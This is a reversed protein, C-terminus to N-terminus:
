KNEIIKKRIRTLAQRTIGLFSCLHSVSIRNLLNPNEEIFKLYREEAAYFLFGEMRVSMRLFLEELILRIFREFVPIKEACDMLHKYPFNIVLSDEIAQFSFRSPMPQELIKYDAIPTNEQNFTVTIEEGNPTTYFTRILGKLVYGIQMQNENQELYFAKAPIESLYLKEGIYQLDSETLKPCRDKIHQLYKEILPQM